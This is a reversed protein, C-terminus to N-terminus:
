QNVVVMLIEQSYQEKLGELDKLVKGSHGEKKGYGKIIEDLELYLQRLEDLNAKKVKTMRAMNGGKLDMGHYNFELLIRGSL